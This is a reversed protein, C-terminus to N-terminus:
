FDSIASGATSAIGAAGQVIQKAASSSTAGGPKSASPSSDGMAAARIPKVLAQIMDPPLESTNTGGQASTLQSPAMLVADTTFGEEYDFSHTVSSVYMQLGHTPFAVKGGPFVEPMFTFQFTTRFQNAWSLMFQQYALYMEFLSSRVQPYTSVQPRAGYRKVFEIAENQSMVNISNNPNSTSPPTNSASKNQKAKSKTRHQNSSDTYTTDNTSSGTTTNNSVADNASSLIGMNPQFANYVTIVGTSFLENYMGTDAPYTNDGVVYQHTVLSQDNLYIDGSLIEIDDIDWYAPHQDFEGFYDPYFAFFDGNPLSQFSRMSAQALQQIFPLLQQDHMLGNGASGLMIAMSMDQISPFELEATFAEAGSQSNVGGSGGSGNTGPVTSGGTLGLSYTTSQSLVSPKVHYRVFNSDPVASGLWGGGGADESGTDQGGGATGWYRNGIRMLIHVHPYDYLTVSNPGTAEGDAILGKSQLVNIVNVEDGVAQGPPYLRAASLVAAVAASCDFGFGGSPGGSNPIGALRAGTNVYQYHKDNIANAAETIAQLVTMQDQTKANGGGKQNTTTDAGANTQGGINVSSRKSLTMDNAVLQTSGDSTTYNSSSGGSKHTKPTKPTGTTPTTSAGAPQTNGLGGPASQIKSLTLDTTGWVSALESSGVFASGDGSKLAALLDGYDGNTITKATAVLGEAWSTYSQVGATNGAIPTSGPMGQTTNIPNYNATNSGGWQPGAGGEAQTWAYVIQMNSNTENINIMSLFTACWQARQYGGAPTKPANGYSGTGGTSGGGGGGKGGGSGSSGSGIVADMFTTLESAADEEQTLLTQMLVAIRAGLGDSGSPLNEIYINADDWQGIDLLTAYLLEGISGDNLTTGSTTQGTSKSGTSQGSTQAQHAMSKANGTMQTKLLNNSSNASSGADTINGAPEANALAKMNYIHGQQDAVWGYYSFFSNVYPLSPDFYTYILRKLTCTAQLTVTGPFMQYYPTDDLYGTFVQVPYGKIRELFITIADMPHFIPMGSNPGVTFIREPNRLTIEATSAQNILRQVSGSTVYNSVDYVTGASNKTYVYASPSYVLRAPM